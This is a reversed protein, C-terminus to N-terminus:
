WGSEFRDRKGDRLDQEIREQRKANETQADNTRQIHEINGQNEIMLKENEREVREARQRQHYAYGGLTAITLLLTVLYAGITKLRDIM